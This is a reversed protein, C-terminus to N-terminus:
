DELQAAVKRVIDNPVNTCGVQISGRKFVVNNQGIRIPPEPKKTRCLRDYFEGPSIIKYDKRLEELSSADTIIRMGDDVRIGHVMSNSPDMGGTYLKRKKAESIILERMPADCRCALRDKLANDVIPTAWKGRLCLWAGNPYGAPGCYVDGDGVWVWNDFPCVIFNTHYGGAGDVRAGPIIGHEAAEKKFKEFQKVDSFKKM